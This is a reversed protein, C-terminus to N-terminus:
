LNKYNIINGFKDRHALLYDNSKKSKSTDFSIKSHLYKMNKFDECLDYDLSVPNMNIGYASLIIKDSDTLDDEYRGNVREIFNADFYVYDSVPYKKFYDDQFKLYDYFQSKESEEYFKEIQEVYFSIDCKFEDSNKYVLYCSHVYMQLSNSHFEKLGTKLNDVYLITEIYRRLITDNMFGIRYANLLREFTENESLGSVYYQYLSTYLLRRTQSDLNNYRPCRPFLRSRLSRWLPVHVFDKHSKVFLRMEGSADFFLKRLDIFDNKYTGIPPNKSFLACPRISKHLYIKPLNTTCNVYSAVYQSADGSVYHPDYVTGNRWAKVLMKSINQACLDSEFFLLLHGHPRYTQPGIELAIFYRLQANDLERFQKRLRKIFLQFDNKNLINLVKSDKIFQIEKLPDRSEENPCDVLRIIESTESVLYSYGDSPNFPLRVMQPVHQEDYQLTAFLVYKHYMAEQELRQVWTAAHSNRCVICKGCRCTILEGTYKNRITKPNLCNMLRKMQSM